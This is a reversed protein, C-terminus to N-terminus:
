SIKILLGFTHVYFTKKKEELFNSYKQLPSQIVENYSVSINWIISPKLKRFMKM